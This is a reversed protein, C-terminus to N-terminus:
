HMDKFPYQKTIQKNQSLLILGIIRAYKHREVQTYRENRKYNETDLGKAETTLNTRLQKVRKLAITFQITKKIEKPNNM